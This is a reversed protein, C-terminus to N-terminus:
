ISHITTIGIPYDKNLLEIIHNLDQENDVFNVNETHFLVIRNNTQFKLYDLYAKQIKDLYDSSIHQEFDRGRKKINELLKEVPAYLFLILDPKPLTPNIIDFLMRYLKEEDKNLNQTAFIISKQFLFDSITHTKFIDSGSQLKRLHAFREAMFYLEVPFAHRDPDEYFKPLFPNNEFEELILNTNYKESLLKALSTKGAGICGEITLFDYQMKWLHM